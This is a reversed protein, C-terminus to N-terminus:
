MHDTKPSKKYEWNVCRGILGMDICLVRNKEGM